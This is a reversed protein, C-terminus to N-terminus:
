GEIPRFSLQTSKILQCPRVVPIPGEPDAGCGDGTDAHADVMYAGDAAFLALGFIDFPVVPPNRARSLEATALRYRYIDGGGQGGRTWALYGGAFGVGAIFKGGLEGIGVRALRRTSGKSVDVLWVESLRGVVQFNVIQALHNGSLEQEAVGGGTTREGRARRPVGPLRQSPRTRPATLARTYVVAGERGNRARAFAIRGKWLTPAFENAATNAGRLPQEVGGAALSLRFLDCGPACRSYVLQPRGKADPGIDVDFPVQSSTVPVSEVRGNRRISLHYAGADFASFVQVDAYSRVPSQRQLHAVVTDAASAPASALLVLVLPAILGAGLHRM